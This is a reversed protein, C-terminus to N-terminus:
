IVQCCITSFRATIRPTTVTKSDLSQGLRRQTTNINYKVKMIRMCTRMTASSKKMIKDYAAGRTIFMLCIFQMDKHFKQNNDFKFLVDRGNVVMTTSIEEYVGPDGIIRTKQTENSLLLAKLMERPNFGEYKIAENLATLYPIEADITAIDITKFLSKAQDATLGQETIISTLQAAYDVDDTISSVM